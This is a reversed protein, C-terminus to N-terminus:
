VFFPHLNDPGMSKGPDLERLLKLIETESILINELNSEVVRYTVEPLTELNEKNFM